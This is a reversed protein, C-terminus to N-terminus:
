IGRSEKSTVWRRSRAGNESLGRDEEGEWGVIRREEEIEKRMKREQSEKKVMNSQQLEYLSSLETDTDFDDWM